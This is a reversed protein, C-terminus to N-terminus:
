YAVATDRVLKYRGLDDMDLVITDGITPRGTAEDIAGISYTAIGVTAVSHEDELNVYVMGESMGSLTGLYPTRFTRKDNLVIDSSDSMYYLTCSFDKRFTMKRYKYREPLDAWETYNGGPYAVGDVAVWKSEPAAGGNLFVIRAYDNVSELKNFNSQYTPVFSTIFEDYFGQRNQWNTYTYDDTYWDVYYKQNPVFDSSPIVYTGGNAVAVGKLYPNTNNNYDDITNYIDIRIDKGTNNTYTYDYQKVGENQQTCGTALISVCAATLLLKTINM